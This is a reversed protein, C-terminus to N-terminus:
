EPKVKDWTTRINETWRDTSTGAWGSFGSGGSTGAQIWRCLRSCAIRCLDHLAYFTKQIRTWILSLSMLMQLPNLELNSHSCLSNNVLLSFHNERSEISFNVYNVLYCVTLNRKLSQSALIAAQTTSDVASISPTGWRGLRQKSQQRDEAGSADYRSLLEEETVKLPQVVKSKIGEYM